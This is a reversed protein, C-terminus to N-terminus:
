ESAKRDGLQFSEEVSLVDGSFNAPLPQDKRALSGVFGFRFVESQSQVVVRFEMPNVFLLYSYIADQLASKSDRRNRGQRDILVLSWLGSSQEAYEVTFGAGVLGYALLTNHSYNSVTVAPAHPTLEMLNDVGFFKVAVKHAYFVDSLSLFTSVLEDLSLRVEKQHTHAGYSCTVQTGTVNYSNHHAINRWQSASIRHPLPRYNEESLPDSLLEDVVTGFTMSKVTPAGSRRRGLLEWVELRLRLLPQLSGELLDGVDRFYSKVLVSFELDTKNNQLTVVCATNKIAQDTIAMRNAWFRYFSGSDKDRAERFEALLRSVTAAYRPSSARARLFAHEYTLAGVNLAETLRAPNEFFPALDRKAESLRERLSTAPSAANSLELELAKFFATKDIPKSM